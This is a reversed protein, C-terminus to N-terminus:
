RTVVLSAPRPELPPPVTRRRTDAVDREGCPPHSFVTVLESFETLAFYNASSVKWASRLHLLSSCVLRPRFLFTLIKSGEWANSEGRLMGSFFGRNRQRDRGLREM